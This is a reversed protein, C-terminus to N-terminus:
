CGPCGMSPRAASCSTLRGARGARLGQAAPRCLGAAPPGDAAQALLSRIADDFGAARAPDVAYDEAGLATVPVWQVDPGFRMQGGLDLTLHVGLGGPEPLPYILRSFAPRGPLAFYHGRAWQQPPV